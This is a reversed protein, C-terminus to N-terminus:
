PSAYVLSADIALSKVVTKGDKKTVDCVFLVSSDDDKNKGNWQFTAEGEGTETLYDNYNWIDIISVKKTNIYNKLIIFDQCTKDADSKTIKTQNPQAEEKKPQTDKAIPKSQQVQQQSNDSNAFYFVVSGLFIIGLFLVAFVSGVIILAKQNNSKNGDPKKNNDNM